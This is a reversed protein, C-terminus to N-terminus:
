YGKCYFGEITKQEEETLKRYKFEKSQLKELM